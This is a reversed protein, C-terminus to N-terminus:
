RRKKEKEYLDKTLEDITIDTIFEGDCYNSYVDFMPKGDFRDYIYSLCGYSEYRVWEIDNDTCVYGNIDPKLFESITMGNIEITFNYEKEVRKIQEITRIDKIINILDHYDKKIEEFSPFDNKNLIMEFYEKRM